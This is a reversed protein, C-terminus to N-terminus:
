GPLGILRGLCGVTHDYFAARETVVNEFQGSLEFSVMGFVSAWAALARAVVDDPVATLLAERLRGADPAFSDPPPPCFAPPDLVGSGYADRIITGLVAAVRSAPGITQQPAQYGPVPSGYVLAYEHPHALAWTRVARCAALWRGAHGDRRCAGDAKEVAAGLANYALFTWWPMNGIGAVIGNLQRVLTLFRAIIVVHGGYREYFNEVRRLRRPTVFLMHGYKLVLRRGAFRGLAYAFNDGIVAAAWATVLLPVISMTGTSGVMLAGAILMAEGPVPIGFDDLLVGVFIAWYGYQDIYPRVDSIFHEFM